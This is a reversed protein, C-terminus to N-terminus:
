RLSQGIWVLVRLFLALPLGIGLMVFPLCFVLGMLVLLDSIFNGTAAFASIRTPVRRIVSPLRRDLVHTITMIQEM